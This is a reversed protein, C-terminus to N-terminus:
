VTNLGKKLRIRRKSSPTLLLGVSKRQDSNVPSGVNSTRSSSCGFCLHLAACLAANGIGERWSGCCSVKRARRERWVAGFMSCTKIYEGAALVCGWSPMRARISIPTRPLNLSNKRATTAPDNQQFLQVVKRTKHNQLECNTQKSQM